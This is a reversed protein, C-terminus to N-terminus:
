QYLPAYYTNTGFEIRLWKAANTTNAPVNTYTVDPFSIKANAGKVTIGDTGVRFRENGTSSVTLDQSSDDLTVPGLDVRGFTAISATGLSLATNFNAANDNTLWTAGLGLNTRATAANTAGTGGNTLALPLSLSNTNTGAAAVVWEVDSATSNVALVKGANNSYLPLVSSLFSTTTSNTLATLGLGIANRFNTVDTNTLWTAGLGLNTRAAGQNSVTLTGSVAVNSFTVSNTAGLGIATRFNTVNTNTLWTAGLSLNSRTGAAVFGDLFSVVSDFTWAGSFVANQFEIYNTSADGNNKYSISFPGYSIENVGETVVVTGYQTNTSGDGVVIGSFKPASTFSLINTGSYVIEGNTKTGLLSTAANTNTLASWGLSLGSRASSANATFLNTPFLLVGTNSQVMVTRSAQPYANALLTITVGLSVLLQNFKRTTMNPELPSSM